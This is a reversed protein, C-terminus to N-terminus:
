FKVHLDSIELNDNHVDAHVQGGKEDVHTWRPKVGEGETHVDYISPGKYLYNWTSWM